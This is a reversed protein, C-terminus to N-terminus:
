RDDDQSEESPQPETKEEPCQRTPKEYKASKDARLERFFGVLQGFMPNEDKIGNQRLVKMFETESEGDYIRKLNRLLANRDQWTLKYKDPM